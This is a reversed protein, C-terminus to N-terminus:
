KSTSRRIGNWAVKCGGAVFALSIAGQLLYHGHNPYSAMAAGCILLFLGVVIFGMRQVTPPKRTGNWMADDVNRSNRILDPMLLNHQREELDRVIRAKASSEVSQKRRM